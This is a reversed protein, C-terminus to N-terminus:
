YPLWGRTHIVVTTTGGGGGQPGQPGPAGPTGKLHAILHWMGDKKFVDGVWNQFYFDGDNGIDASPRSSGNLWQTSDGPPGPEGQDGKEGKDGKDGKRGVPGIDGQRGEPGPIPRVRQFLEAIDERVSVLDSTLVDM